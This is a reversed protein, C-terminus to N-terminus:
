GLPRGAHLAQVHRRIREFQAVQDSAYCLKTLHIPRQWRTRHTWVTIGRKGQAKLARLEHLLVAEKWKVRLHPLLAKLVPAASKDHISWVVLDRHSPQTSRRIAISGGFTEALLEVARSPVVQGCRVNIRYHPGLMGVVHRTEVRLNGDSDIIGALYAFLEERSWGLESPSLGPYGNMDPALPLADGTRLSGDHQSSLAQRVVEMQEYERDTKRAKGHRRPRLRAIELVLLAHSRKLLLFPLLRRAASEAKRGLVECRAMMTGRPTRWPAMVSGAFESAFRKVAEGPWVQQVGVVTAYYPHATSSTRFSRAIKFYGDGDVLGGLYALVEGSDM